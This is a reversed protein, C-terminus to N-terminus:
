GPFPTFGTGDKSWSPVRMTAGRHGCEPCRMRSLIADMGISPGHREILTAYRIAKRYTCAPNDCYFWAWDPDSTSYSGLLPRPQDRM